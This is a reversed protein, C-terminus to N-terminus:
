SRIDKKTRDLVEMNSTVTPRQINVALNGAGGISFDQQEELLIPVPAEPSIRDAQGIIWRDLMIDGYVLIM